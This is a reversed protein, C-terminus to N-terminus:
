CDDFVWVNGGIEVFTFYHEQDRIYSNWDFYTALIGTLKDGVQQEAWERKSAYVGVCCDLVDEIEEPADKKKCFADVTEQQDTNMAVFDWLRPDIGSEHYFDQPFGEFDVFMYEPEREDDHIKACHEHFEDSGDFDTLDVWKGKTNDSAYKHYTTVYLSPNVRTTIM